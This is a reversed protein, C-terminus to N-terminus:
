KTNHLSILDELNEVNFPIRHLKLFKNSKFIYITLYFIFKM